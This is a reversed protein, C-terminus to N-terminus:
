GNELFEKKSIEDESINEDLYTEEYDESDKKVEASKKNSVSGGHKKGMLDEWGFGVVTLIGIVIATAVKIMGSYDVSESKKDDASGDPIIM